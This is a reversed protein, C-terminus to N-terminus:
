GVDEPHWPLVTLPDKCWALLETVSRQLVPHQWAGAVEALPTLVFRREAMRPHPISLEATDVVQDAYFLVDIDIIRDGWKALRERGMEKEVALVQALLASPSLMTDLLVVQNLYPLQSVGGWADTEWITSIRSLPGLAAALFSSAVTLNQYRNGLNTGLLLAAPILDM